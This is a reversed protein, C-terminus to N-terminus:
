FKFKVGVRLGYNSMPFYTKLLQNPNSIAINVNRDYSDVFQIQKDIVDFTALENTVVGASTSTAETMEGQKPAYSLSTVFLEGFLDFKGMTYTTGISSSFGMGVGGKYKWSEHWAFPGTPDNLTYDFTISPKSIVAALKAYPQLNGSAKSKFVLGPAFSLAKASMTYTDTIAGLPDRLDTEMAETKGGMLYSIGLEAELNENLIYGFTGNAQIGKGLSYKVNNRIDTTNTRTRNIITGFNPDSFDAKAMGTGYGVSFSASIKQSYANISLVSGLLFMLIKTKKM